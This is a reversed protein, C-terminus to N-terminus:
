FFTRSNRKQIKARRKLEIGALKKAAPERHMRQSIPYINEFLIKSFSNQM